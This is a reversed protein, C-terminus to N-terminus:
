VIVVVVVVVAVAVAENVAIAVLCSAAIPMKLDKDWSSLGLVPRVATDISGSTLYCLM